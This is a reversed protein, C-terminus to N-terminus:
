HVQTEAAREDDAEAPKLSAVEAELERVSGKCKKTEHKAREVDDGDYYPQGDFPPEGMLIMSAVERKRSAQLSLRRFVRVVEDRPKGLMEAVQGPLLKTCSATNVGWPEVRSVRLCAARVDNVDEERFPPNAAEAKKLNAQHAELQSQLSALKAQAAEFAAQDPSATSGSAAFILPPAKSACSREAAAVAARV